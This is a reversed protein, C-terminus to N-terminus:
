VHRARVIQLTVCTGAPSSQIDFHDVLRKTSPLGAGPRGSTSYGDEVARAVDAIGPGLDRVQV